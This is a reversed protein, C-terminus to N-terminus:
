LKNILKDIDKFLFINKDLKNEELHQTNRGLLYLKNTKNHLFDRSFEEIYKEVGNIEPKITFYSIFNIKPFISQLAFLNNTPVSTGLYISHFGKLALEYHIFLLGLEHMENDPLFLVFVKSNNVSTSQQIREINIHLKQKILNSIFHEHAPTVRESQWYIGVNNLLPIFVKKFVERFSFEALLRNYTTEFLHQDFNFMSVLISNMFSDPTDSQSIQQIVLEKQKQDNLEAIKSIKLGSKLLISVNLLKKLHNLNYYRINTDTREPTLLHYRKEWIRITHAKIGSLNELDKISFLTYINNM